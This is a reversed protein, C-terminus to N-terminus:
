GTERLVTLAQLVAAELAEQDGGRAFTHSDSAIEIAPEVARRLGAAQDRGGGSRPAMAM